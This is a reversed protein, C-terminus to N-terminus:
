TGNGQGGGGHATAQWATLAPLGVALLLHLLLLYAERPPKRECAVYSFLLDEAIDPLGMGILVAAMRSKIDFDHPDLEVTRRLLAMAQLPNGERDAKEASELYATKDAKFQLIGM